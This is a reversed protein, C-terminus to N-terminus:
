LDAELNLSVPTGFDNENQIFQVWVHVNENGMTTSLDSLQSVLSFVYKEGGDWPLEQWKFLYVYYGKLASCFDIYAFM